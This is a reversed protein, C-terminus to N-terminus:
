HVIHGGDHGAADDNEYGEDDDADGADDDGPTIAAKQLVGDAAYIPAGHRLALAIADSPRADLEVRGQPAQLYIRGYFVSDDFHIVAVSEVTAQLQRVIEAMLDHTLPRPPQVGEVALAIANAESPGVEMALLRRGDSERLVVVIGDAGPVVGVTVVHMRVM